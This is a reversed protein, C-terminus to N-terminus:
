SHSAYGDRAWGPGRLEFAGSGSILRQATDEECEPCRKTAERTIPHVEEWEHKCRKNKCIYEYTPM